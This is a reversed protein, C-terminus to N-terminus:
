GLHKTEVHSKVEAKQMSVSGPCVECKYLSEESRGLTPILRFFFTKGSRREELALRSAVGRSNEYLVLIPEQARGQASDRATKIRLFFEGVETTSLGLEDTLSFLDDCLCLLADLDYGEEELSAIWKPNSDLVYSLDM